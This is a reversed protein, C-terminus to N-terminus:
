RMPQRSWYTLSRWLWELPGFRFHSLWIRSVILQFTWIALMVLYFRVRDLTGYLALGYGYFILTCALSDFIYNSLATQGIAGLRSTLWPVVRLQCLLALVAVHGL